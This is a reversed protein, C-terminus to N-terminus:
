NWLGYFIKMIYQFLIYSIIYKEYYCFVIDMNKRTKINERRKLFLFIYKTKKFFLYANIFKILKNKM